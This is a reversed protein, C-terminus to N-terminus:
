EQGSLFRVIIGAVDEIDQRYVFEDRGHINCEPRIVGLGFEKGGWEKVIHPLDGSGMEGYKGGQGTMEGIIDSLEDIVPDESSPVTPITFVRVMEWAVGPVAALTDELEKRAFEINEEPILRRDISILCEDPVINVKIGGQIMNINLRAQMRDLGTGPHAPVKSKRKVVKEKLDLLANVLRNAQEVANEGLHSMASHVSKGTVRIDVQLAGLGAISVYGFSSDLDFVLAGSVPQLYGALYRLQSAQSYEEDTTVMVSVDYKLPKEKLQELALLLAVLSGKMDAAGRGYIKGNEVRPCFADWGEAPVVDIHSYFILRKKGPSRRHGVLNVRSERGEAHGAPIAIKQTQFGLGKFIPELYDIAKEYNRGPPVTTDISILQKLIEIYDM